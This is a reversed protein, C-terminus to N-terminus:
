PHTSNRTNVNIPSHKVIQSNAHPKSSSNTNQASITVNDNNHKSEPPTVASNTSLNTAVHVSIDKMGNGGPAGSQKSSTSNNRHYREITFDPNENDIPNTFEHSQAEIGNFNTIM